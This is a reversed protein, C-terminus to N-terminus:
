PLIIGHHEWYEVAADYKAKDLPVGSGGEARGLANRMITIPSMPLEYDEDQCGWACAWKLAAGASNDFFL